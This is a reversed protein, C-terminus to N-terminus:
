GGLKRRFAPALEKSLRTLARRMPRAVTVTWPNAGKLNRAKIFRVYDVDNRISARVGTAGPELRTEAELAAKSRGTKEPWGRRAGQLVFDREDEVMRLVGPQAQEAARRVLRELADSIQVTAPGSRFTIAM